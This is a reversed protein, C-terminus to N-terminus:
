GYQAGVSAYTAIGGADDGAAGAILGPGLVALVALARRQLLGPSRGPPFRSSARETAPFSITQQAAQRRLRAELLAAALAHRTFSAIAM